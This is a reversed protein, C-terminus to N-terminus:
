ILVSCHLPQFFLWISTLCVAWRQYQFASIKKEWVFSLVMTAEVCIGVSLFISIYVSITSTSVLQIDLKDEGLSNRATCSFIAYDLAASVNVVRLTSIHISGERVVWHEYRNCSCLCGCMCLYSVSLCLSLYLLFHHSVLVYCLQTSYCSVILSYMETPVQDLHLCGHSSLASIRNNTLSRLSLSRESRPNELDMLLGNKEWTFDVRPIAEAQCVLEAAATGDGRSAVKTWQAGKHLKPEVACSLISVPIFWASTLLASTAHSHM